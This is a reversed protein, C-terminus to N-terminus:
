QLSGAADGQLLFAAAIEDIKPPDFPFARFVPAGQRVTMHREQILRRFLSGITAAASFVKGPALKFDRVAGLCFDENKEKSLLWFYTHGSTKDHVISYKNFAM